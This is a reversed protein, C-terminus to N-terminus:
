LYRHLLPSFVIFGIIFAAILFLVVSKVTIIPKDDDDDDPPRVRSKRRSSHSCYDEVDFEYVLPLPPPPIVPIISNDDIFSHEEISPIHRELRDMCIVDVNEVSVSGRPRGPLAPARIRGALGCVSAVPPLSNCSNLETTM